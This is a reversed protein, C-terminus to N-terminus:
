NVPVIRGVQITDETITGIKEIYDMLDIPTAGVVEHPNGAFMEYDDGGLGLFEIMVITFTDDDEIVKGGVEIAVLNSDAEASPDYTVKMGSVQLFGGADQGMRSLSLQMAGKLQKGTVQMSWIDNVFPCVNYADRKTIDGVKVSARISGGNAIAIDTGYTARYCDAVLDGLNTEMNRVHTREGDLYAETTGIKESLIGDVEDHIHKVVSDVSKEPIPEGRYLKASVDGKGSVTIIGVHDNHAGTSAIITDSPLLDISGDCVKGDEMETHSHGDIFIDIGTVKNCIEDSRVTATSELGIHGVAIIYDAGMGKLTSVMRKSAEVPDTVVCDGMYGKKVSEVTDPTLLGFCGLKVGGKEVIMYEPLVNKGTEGHIMNACLLQYDLANARETFVEYTYDFERNGPIGLDYGVTNMVEVSYEGESLTGYVSGQLFDGADMVFVTNGEAEKQEILAKVTSFGLSGDDGYYCHTDNTHIIVFGKSSDDPSGYAVYSAVLVALVAVVAIAVIKKNTINMIVYRREFYFADQLTSNQTRPGLRISESIMHTLHPVTRDAVSELPTTRITCIQYKFTRGKDYIHIM